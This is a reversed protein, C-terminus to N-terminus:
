LSSRKSYRKRAAMGILCLGATLAFATPGPEPTVQDVFNKCAFKIESTYVTTNVGTHPTNNVVTYDGSTVNDFAGFADIGVIADTYLSNGNLVGTTLGSTTRLSSNLFAAGSDGVGGYGEGGVAGGTGLKNFNYSIADYNYAGITINSNLGVFKNNQYRKVGYTNTSMVMTSGGPGYSGKDGFGVESFTDFKAASTTALSLPTLGTFRADVAGYKVLIVDADVKQTLPNNGYTQKIVQQRGIISYNAAVDPSDLFGASASNGFAIRDYGKSFIHDSTLICLYGTGRDVFKDIISGTGGNVRGKTTVPGTAPKTIQVVSNLLSLGGSAPNTVTQFAPGTAYAAFPLLSSAVVLTARSLLQRRHLLM